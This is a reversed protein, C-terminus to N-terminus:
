MKVTGKIANYYATLLDEFVQTTVNKPDKPIKSQINNVSSSLTESM